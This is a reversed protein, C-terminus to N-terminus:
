HTYPGLEDSYTTEIFGTYNSNEFYSTAHKEMWSIANLSKYWVGKQWWVQDASIGYLHTAVAVVVAAWAPLGAISAIVGTILSMNSSTIYSNSNISHDYTYGDNWNNLGMNGEIFNNNTTIEVNIKVTEVIESTNQNTITIENTKTNEIKYNTDEITAIYSYKGDAEKITELYEVDGTNLDTLKIKTDTLLEVQVDNYIDSQSAEAAGSWLTIPLAGLIFSLTVILFKMLFGKRM